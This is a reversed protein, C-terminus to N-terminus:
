QAPGRFTKIYDQALEVMRAKAGAHEPAHALDRWERPDARMEYLGERGDPHRLYRYRETSVALGTPKNATAVITYAPHDWATKPDALLPVISRGDTGEPAPLGCLEALTPYLDLFEVVRACAVGRAKGPAAILLSTSASEDFLNGKGWWGGRTGLMYGHDGMLVVITKEALGLRDLADLMTGVQQDMFSVCALYGRLAARTDDDSVPGKLGPMTVPSTPPLPMQALDYLDFFARPAVRPLHPRRLGCALFFPKDGRAAQEMLTVAREANRVDILSAPDGVYQSHVDGEGGGGKLRREDRLDALLGLQEFERPTYIVKNGPTGEESVDWCEPLDRGIHFVKGLRATFYGHTKFHQPLFVADRLAPTRLPGENGFVGTREPRRGSLFSTRSPSCVPYQCYARDFRVARAALRGVHPTRVIPDGYCDLRKNLDDAIIWLVNPREPPGAEPSAALLTLSLFSVM